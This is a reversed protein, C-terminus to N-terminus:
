VVLRYTIYRGATESKRIIRVVAGSKLGLFKAVPDSANMRPLQTEKLRYRDLLARKEDASLPEHTPVLTHKTINVILEAEFFLEMQVDILSQLAKKAIATISGDVILIGRKVNVDRMKTECASIGPVGVKGSLFFVFIKEEATRKSSLFDLSDRSDEANPFREYFMDKTMELNEEAVVYGRTHLMENVTKWVRWIVYTKDDM